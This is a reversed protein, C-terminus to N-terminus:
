VRTALPRITLEVRNSRMLEALLLEPSNSPVENVGVILDTEMVAKRPNTSSWMGMPGHPDVWEVRLAQRSEDEVVRFGFTGEFGKTLSIRFEGSTPASVGGVGRAAAGHGAFAGPAAGYGGGSSAEDLAGCGGIRAGRSGFLRHYGGASGAFGGLSAGGDNGVASTAMCRGYPASAGLPSSPMSPARPSPLAAVGGSAQVAAAPAEGPPQARRARGVKASWRQRNFVEEGYEIKPDVDPSSVRLLVRRGGDGPDDDDAVSVKSSLYADPLWQEAIRYCERPSALFARLLDRLFNDHTESADHGAGEMVVVLGCKLRQRRMQAFANGTIASAGWGVAGPATSERGRKAVSQKPGIYRDADGVLNLTAVEVSGGFQAADRSPTLCSFEVSFASIIRGRLMAGYRRDDFRAVTMAGEAQGMTFVGRAKMRQPLRGLIWHMECSRKRFMSDFLKLAEPRRGALEPAADFSYVGERTSPCPASDDWYPTPQSSGIRGAVDLNRYGGGAMGDPAIVLYGMAALMRALRMSKSTVGDSGCVFLVAGTYPAVHYELINLVCALSAVRRTLAGRWVRQMKLVAQWKGPDAMLEEVARRQEQTLPQQKERALERYRQLLLARLEWARGFWLRKRDACKDDMNPTLGLIASASEPLCLFCNGIVGPLEPPKTPTEEAETARSRWPVRARACPPAPARRLAESDEACRFSASTPRPSLLRASADAVPATSGSVVEAHVPVALRVVAPPTAPRDAHAGGFFAPQSM